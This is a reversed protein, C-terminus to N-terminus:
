QAMLQLVLRSRAMSHRTTSAPDTPSWATLPLSLGIDAPAGGIVNGRGSLSAAGVVQQLFM